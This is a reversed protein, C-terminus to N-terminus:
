CWKHNEGWKRQKKALFAEAAVILITVILISLIETM